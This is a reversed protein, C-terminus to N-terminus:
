SKQFHINKQRGTAAIEGMGYFTHIIEHNILEDLLKTSLDPTQAIVKIFFSILPPKFKHQTVALQVFKEGEHVVDYRFNYVFREKIEPKLNDIKEDLYIEIEEETM